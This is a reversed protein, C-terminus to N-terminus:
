IKSQAGLHWFAWVGLTLYENQATQAGLDFHNTM